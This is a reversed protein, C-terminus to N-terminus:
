RRVQVGGDRELMVLAGGRARTEALIAAEGIVPTLARGNVVVTLDSSLHPKVEDLAWLISSWILPIPNGFVGGGILTLVVKPRELTVAALLTGLYAARLLQRCTPEFFDGLKQGGYGGGAVTSTLVQGILRRGEVAGHWDYGFAVEVGDHVGLRIADFHEELAAAFARPDRVGEAQLYGSQVAAVAPACVDRLLDLQPGGSAQTFRGAASPAQYHRLLTGPFASISARPGQTYDFYYEAVPVICPDPAELCNFQSAVQFLSGEGATGQLGGIDSAAGAGDLVWLHAQGGAGGRARARLEGISPTEFRGAEWSRGRASLTARGAEDFAFSGAPDARVIDEVETVLQQDARRASARLAATHALLARALEADDHHQLLLDIM